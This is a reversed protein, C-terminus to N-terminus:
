RQLPATKLEMQHRLYETGYPGALSDGRVCDPYLMLFFSIDKSINERALSRSKPTDGELDFAKVIVDRVISIYKCYGSSSGQLRAYWIKTFGEGWREPLGGNIYGGFDSEVLM